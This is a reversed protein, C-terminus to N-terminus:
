RELVFLAADDMVDKYTGWPRLDPQSAMRLLLDTYREPEYFAKHVVIYRVDHARLGALSADDPFSEMRVLTRVYDPPYYGSYGNVLPHWHQLSWLSYFPDRGPLRNLSPLPLEIVVGAGASRIVTYISSPSLLDSASVWLPRNLADATMLLLALPIVAARRRRVRDTIAQAGLAALVALACSAVIAFRASSRLGQLLSVREFMWRYVSNNVGFSMAIAAV